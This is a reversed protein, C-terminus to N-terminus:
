AQQERNQLHLGAKCNQGAVMAQHRYLHSNVSWVIPLVVYDYMCIRAISFVLDCKACGTAIPARMLAFNNNLRRILLFAHSTNYGPPSNILSFIEPKWLTSVVHKGDRSVLYWAQPRRPQASTWRTKPLQLLYEVDLGTQHSAHGGNFRGGAPM